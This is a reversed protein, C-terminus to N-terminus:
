IPIREFEMRFLHGYTKKKKAHNVNFLFRFHSNLCFIDAFHRANKDWAASRTFEWHADAKNGM